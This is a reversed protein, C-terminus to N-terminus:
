LEVLGARIAHRTLEAISQVHLKRKLNSRHHDTTKSSIALRSAIEKTGHGEAILQLVQSERQTLIPKEHDHAASEFLYQSVFPTFYSAGRLVAVLAAHLIELPDNKSVFAVPRSQLARIVLATPCSTAFVVARTAPLEKRLQQLVETGCQDPLILDLILFDPRLKLCLEAAKLGSSTQAVIEIVFDRSLMTALLGRTAVQADAIVVRKKMRVAKM